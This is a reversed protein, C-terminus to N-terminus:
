FDLDSSRTDRYSGLFLRTVYELDSPLVTQQDFHQSGKFKRFWNASALPGPPLGDPTNSTECGTMCTALPHWKSFGNSDRSGCQRVRQWIQGSSRCTCKASAELVITLQNRGPRNLSLVLAILYIDHKFSFPHSHAIIAIYVIGDKAVQPILMNVSVCLCPTLPYLPIDTFLKLRDFLYNEFCGFGSFSSRWCHSVM